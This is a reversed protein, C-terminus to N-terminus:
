MQGPNPERIMYMSLRIMAPMARAIEVPEAATKLAEISSLFSSVCIAFRIGPASIM